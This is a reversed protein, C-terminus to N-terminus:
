VRRAAEARDGAGPEGRVLPLLSTEQFALQSTDFGMTDLVTPAVAALSVPDDIM